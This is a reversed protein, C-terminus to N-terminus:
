QEQLDPLNFQHIPEHTELIGTTDDFQGVHYCAYDEPHISFTSNEDNLADILARKMVADNQLFFPRIYAQTRVDRITYIQTIM